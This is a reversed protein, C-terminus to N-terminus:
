RTGGLRALYGAALDLVRLVLERTKLLEDIPDLNRAIGLGADLTDTAYGKIELAPRLVRYFLSVVLLLVVVGLALGIWALVAVATSMALIATM